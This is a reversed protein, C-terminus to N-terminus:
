TDLTLVEELAEHVARLALTSGISFRLCGALGPYRGVNRVRLGREGLGEFVRLAREESGVRVLLFNAFSPFVELHHAQLMTKWRNRLEITARVRRDVAAKSRLAEIGALVSAHGVNYPLKVSILASVLSPDALLYGLRLGGLGWAKSFTGFILLNRFRDLLPRYDLGSYEVYAGDLLLPGQLPALLESLEEPSLADGTPNNPSCILVPRKPHREIERKLEAIPLKLDERPPLFHATGGTRQIMRRYLGFSPDAGLVTRGPGGLSDLSIGLLENSGNGVLIGDVPWEFRSSLEERLSDGHFTPYRGWAQELLARSMREKIPRPLEWASENQDLKFRCPSLDLTYPLIGRLDERVLLSPDNLRGESVSRM